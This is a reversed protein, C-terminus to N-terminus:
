AGPTPSSSPSTSRLCVGAPPSASWSSVTPLSCPTEAFRAELVINKGEVYGIDRLGDRLADLSTNPSAAIPSVVGIRYVKSAQQAEAVIAAALLLAAVALRTIM